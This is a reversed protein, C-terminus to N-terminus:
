ARAEPPVASAQSPWLQPPYHFTGYRASEPSVPLQSQCSICTLLCFTTNSDKLPSTAVYKDLLVTLGQLSRPHLYLQHTMLTKHFTSLNSCHEIIPQVPGFRDLHKVQVGGLLLSVREKLWDTQQQLRRYISLQQFLQLWVLVPDSWVWCCRCRSVPLSAATSQDM